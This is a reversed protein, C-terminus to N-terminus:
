QNTILEQAAGVQTGFQTGETSTLVEGGYTEAISKLQDGSYGSGTYAVGVIGSQASALEGLAASKDSGSANDNQGAMIVINPILEQRDILAGAAQRLASWLATKSRAEETSPPGVRTLAEFLSNKDATFAQVLIGT